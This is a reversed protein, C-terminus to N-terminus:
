LHKAISTELIEGCGISGLYQADQIIFEAINLTNEYTIQRIFVPGSFKILLLRISVFQCIAMGLNANPASM